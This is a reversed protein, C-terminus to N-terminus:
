EGSAPADFKLIWATEPSLVVWLGFGLYLVGCFLLFLRSM